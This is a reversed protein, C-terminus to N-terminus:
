HWKWVLNYVGILHILIKRSSHMVMVKFWSACVTSHLYLYITREQFEKEQPRGALAAIQERLM